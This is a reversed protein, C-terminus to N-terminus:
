SPTLGIYFYCEENGDEAPEAYKAEAVVDGPKVDSFLDIIASRAADYDFYLPGGDEGFAYIDSMSDVEDVLEKVLQGYTYNQDVPAQIVPGSFGAFFSPLCCDLYIATYM